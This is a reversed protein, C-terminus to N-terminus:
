LSPRVGRAATSRASSRSKQDCSALHDDAYLYANNGLGQKVWYVPEPEGARDEQLLHVGEVCDSQRAPTAVLKM